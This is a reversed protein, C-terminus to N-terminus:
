LVRSAASGFFTTAAQYRTGDNYRRADVGATVRPTGGGGRDFCCGGLVGVANWM